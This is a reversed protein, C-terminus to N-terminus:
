LTPLPTWIEAPAPVKRKAVAEFGTRPGEWDTICHTVPSFRCCLSALFQGLVPTLIANLQVELEGYKMM